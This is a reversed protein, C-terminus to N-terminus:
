NIYQGEIWQGSYQSGDANYVTGRGHLQDNLFEGEYRTGSAWTMVGYGTRRDEVFEGEYCSGDAWSLVGYGHRQGNVVEGEYRNGNDWIYVGRGNPIGKVLDGEYTCSNYIKTGYGTMTEVENAERLFDNTMWASGEMVANAEESLTDTWGVLYATLSDVKASNADIMISTDFHELFLQRLQQPYYFDRAGFMHLLEHNFGALNEFLLVHETGADRIYSVAYARGPRNVCLMFAAQDAGTQACITEAANTSSLGANMLVGQVWAEDGIIDLQERTSSRLYKPQLDLEVGYAAAAKELRKASEEAETMAMSSSLTDWQYDPEDVLIVVLAIDGELTACNGLGKKQLLHHPETEQPVAAPATTANPQAPTSGGTSVSEWVVLAVLAVCVALLIKKM